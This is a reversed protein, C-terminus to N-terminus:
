GCDHATADVVRPVVCAAEDQDTAARRNLLKALEHLMTVRPAAVACCDQASRYRVAAPACCDQDTPPRGAAVTVVDQVTAARFVTAEGCDHAVLAARYVLAVWAPHVTRVRPDEAALEEHSRTPRRATAYAVAHVTVSRSPIAETWAHDM